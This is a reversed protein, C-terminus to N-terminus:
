LMSIPVDLKDRISYYYSFYHAVASPNGLLSGAVRSSASLSLVFYQMSVSTDLFIPRLAEVLTSTFTQWETHM